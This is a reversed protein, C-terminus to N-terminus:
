GFNIFQLNKFVKGRRDVVLKVNGNPTANKVTLMFRCGASSIYEVDHLDFIVTSLPRKREMEFAEALQDTAAEDLRGFIYFILTETDKRYETNIEVAQLYSVAFLTIALTLMLTKM